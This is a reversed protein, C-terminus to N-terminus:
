LYARNSIALLKSTYFVSMAATTGGDEMSKDMLNMGFLSCAIAIIFIICIKIRMGPM